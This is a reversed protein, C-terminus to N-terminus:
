IFIQELVSEAYVNVTGFRPDPLTDIKIDLQRSLASAKKGYSSAETLSLTKIGIKSAYARISYFHGDPNFIREIEHDHQHVM